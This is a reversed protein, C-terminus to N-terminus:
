WSSEKTACVCVRSSTATASSLSQQTQNIRAKRSPTSVCSTSSWGAASRSGGTPSRASLGAGLRPGPPDDLPRESGPASPSRPPAPRRTRPSGPRPSSPAPASRGRRRTSGPGPTPTPPAAGAASLARVEAPSGSGGTSSRSAVVGARRRRLDDDSPTACARGRRGAAAAGRVPTGGAGAALRRGRDPPRRLSARGTPHLHPDPRRGRDDVFVTESFGLEAAVRRASAGGAGARRRPLRRAPQGM